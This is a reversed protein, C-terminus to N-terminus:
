TIPKLIFFSKQLKFRQSNRAVKVLMRKAHNSGYAAPMQRKQEIALAKNVGIENWKKRREERTRVKRWILM